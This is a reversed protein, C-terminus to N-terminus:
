RFAEVELANMAGYDEIELTIDDSAYGDARASMVRAYVSSGIETTGDATMVTASVRVPARSNVLFDPMAQWNFGVLGAPQPGLDESHLIVGSSPDTYTVVVAEADAPLDLVGSISGEADARAISSPVLVQHGLLNTATAMRTDRMGATLSTLTDNVRDIGAVTSFQAMQALFEGNEMPSLPDQNQMQATLLTLFDQQGLETRGSGSTPGSSSNALTTRSTAEIM